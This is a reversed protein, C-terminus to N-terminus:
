RIGPPRVGCRPPQGATGPFHFLPDLREGSQLFARTWHPCIEVPHSQLVAFDCGNGGFRIGLDLLGKEGIWPFRNERFGLRAQAVYEEHAGKQNNTPDSM